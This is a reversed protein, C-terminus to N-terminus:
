AVKALTKNRDETIMQEILTYKRDLEEKSAPMMDNNRRFLEDNMLVQNYGDTLSVPASVEKRSAAENIRQIVDVTQKRGIESGSICYDDDTLPSIDFRDVKSRETFSYIVGKIENTVTQKAIYNAFVRTPLDLDPSALLNEGNQYYIEAFPRNDITRKIHIVVKKEIPKM